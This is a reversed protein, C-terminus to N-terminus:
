RLFLRQLIPDIWLLGNKHMIKLITIWILLSAKWSDIWYSNIDEKWTLLPLDSGKFTSIFKFAYVFFSKCNGLRQMKDQSNLWVLTFLFSYKIWISWFNIISFFQVLVTQLLKMVTFRHCRYIIYFFAYFM